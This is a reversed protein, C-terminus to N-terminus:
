KKVRKRQKITIDVEQGVAMNNVAPGIVIAEVMTAPEGDPGLPTVQLLVTPASMGDKPSVGTVTGRILASWLVSQKKPTKRKM